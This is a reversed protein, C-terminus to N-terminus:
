EGPADAWPDDASALRRKLVVIALPDRLFAELTTAVTTAIITRVAEALAADQARALKAAEHREAYGPRSRAAERRSPGERRGTM